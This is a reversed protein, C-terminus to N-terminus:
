DLLPLEPSPNRSDDRTPTHDDSGAVSDTKLAAQEEPHRAAREQALMDVTDGLATTLSKRTQAHAAQECRLVQTLRDCELLATTLRQKLEAIDDLREVQQQIASRQHELDTGPQLIDQSEQIQAKLGDITQRTLNTETRRQKAETEYLDRWKSASAHAEDREQQLEVLKQQLSKIETLWQRVDQTM